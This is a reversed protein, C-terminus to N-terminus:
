LAAGFEKLVWKKLSVAEEEGPQAQLGQSGIRKSLSWGDYGIGPVMIRFLTLFSLEGSVKLTIKCFDCADRSKTMHGCM